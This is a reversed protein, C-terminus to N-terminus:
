FSGLGPLGPFAGGGPPTPLREQVSATGSQSVIGPVDGRGVVSWSAGIQAPHMLQAEKGGGWSHEKKPINWRQAQLPAGGERPAVPCNPVETYAQEAPSVHGSLVRPQVLEPTNSPHLQAGMHGGVGPEWGWSSVM